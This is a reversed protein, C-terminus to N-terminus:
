KLAVYVRVNSEM